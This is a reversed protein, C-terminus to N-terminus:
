KDQSWVIGTEGEEVKVKKESEVRFVELICGEEWVPQIISIEKM